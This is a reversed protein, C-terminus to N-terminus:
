GVLAATQSRCMEVARWEGDEYPQWFADRGRTLRSTRSARGSPDSCTSGVKITLPTPTSTSASRAAQRPPKVSRALRSVAGFHDSALM